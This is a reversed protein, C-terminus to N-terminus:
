ARAAPYKRQSRTTVLKFKSTKPTPVSACATAASRTYESPNTRRFEVGGKILNYISIYELAWEEVVIGADENEPFKRGREEINM